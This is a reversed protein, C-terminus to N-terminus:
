GHNRTRSTTPMTGVVAAIQTAARTAEASFGDQRNHALARGREILAQRQDDSLLRAHTRRYANRCASSCFLLFAAEDHRLDRGCHQCTRRDTVTV